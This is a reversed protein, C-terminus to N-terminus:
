ANDEHEVYRRAAAMARAETDFLVPHGDDDVQWVTYGDDEELALTYKLGMDKTLISVVKFEM